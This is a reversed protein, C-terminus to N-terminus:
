FWLGMNIWTNYISLVYGYNKDFVDKFNMKFDHLLLVDSKLYLM